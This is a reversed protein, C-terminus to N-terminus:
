VVFRDPTQGGSHCTGHKQQSLFQHDPAILRYKPYAGIYQVASANNQCSPFSWPHIWPLSTQNKESHKGDDFLSSFVVWNTFITALNHSSPWWWSHNWPNWPNIHINGFIPTGGFWGNSYPKGNYVMWKPTGRIKPFVWIFPTNKKEM